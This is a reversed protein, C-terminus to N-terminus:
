APVLEVSFSDGIPRLTQAGSGTWVSRQVLTIETVRPEPISALFAEIEEQLEVKPRLGDAVELAFLAVRALANKAEKDLEDDWEAEVLTQRLTDLNDIGELFRRIREIYDSSIEDIRM